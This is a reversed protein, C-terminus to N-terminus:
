RAMSSRRVIRNNGTDSIYLSGGADMAIGRPSSLVDKGPPYCAPDEGAPPSDAGAVLLFQGAATIEHVHNASSEAFFVNGAADAALAEPNHFIAGLAPRGSASEHPM